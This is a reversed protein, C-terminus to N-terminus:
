IRIRERKVILSRSHIREMMRSINFQFIGNAFVEDGEHCPFHEYNADFALMRSTNM